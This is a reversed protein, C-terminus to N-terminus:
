SCAPRVGLLSFQGGIGWAPLSGGSPRNHDGRYVYGHKASRAPDRRRHPRGVRAPFYAPGHLVVCSVRMPRCFQRWIFTTGFVTTEESNRLGIAHSAIERPVGTRSQRVSQRRGLSRNAPRSPGFSAARRSSCRWGLSCFCREGEVLVIAFTVFEIGTM